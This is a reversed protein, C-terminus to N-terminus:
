LYELETISANLFLAKDDMCPISVKRWLLGWHEKIPGEIGFAVGRFWWFTGVVVGAAVGFIIWKTKNKLRRSKFIFHDFLHGVMLVAFYLTPLYHHIYTVRGM